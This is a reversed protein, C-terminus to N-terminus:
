PLDSPRWTLVVHEDDLAYAVLHGADARGDGWADAIAGFLQRAYVDTSPVQRTAGAVHGEILVQRGRLYADLQPYTRIAQPKGTLRYDQIPKRTRRTTM